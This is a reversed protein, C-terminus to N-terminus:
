LCLLERLRETIPKQPPPAHDFELRVPPAPETTEKRGTERLKALAERKWRWSAERAAERDKMAAFREAPTAHARKMKLAWALKEKRAKDLERRRVSVGTDQYAPFTVVSVEYLKVKRITWVTPEGDMYQVDQDVIDFGFSCQSVDGRKVREYMNMADQDAQNITISGWLGVDDTRLTLTGATTRGLVLTTDHNCLARVDGHTEGDFAGPAITEYAGEWLDYRSNYVAFYGEIYLGGDEARTRFKGDRATATRREMQKTERM